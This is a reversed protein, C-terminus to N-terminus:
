CVKARRFSRVIEYGVLHKHPGNWVYIVPKEILARLEPDKLMDQAPILYRYARDRMPKVIQPNGLVPRVVSHVGDAGIILDAASITEGSKLTVSAKLADISVVEAGLRLDALPSAIEYLM